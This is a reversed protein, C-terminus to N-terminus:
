AGRLSSLLEQVYSQIFPRRQATYDPGNVERFRRLIAQTIDPVGMRRGTSTEYEAYRKVDNVIGTDEEDTLTDVRKYMPSYMRNGYLSQIAGQLQGQMPKPLSTGSLATAAQMQAMLQPLSRSTPASMVLQSLDSMLGQQAEQQAEMQAMLAEQEAERRAQRREAQEQEHASRMQMFANIADDGELGGSNLGRLLFNLDSLYAM